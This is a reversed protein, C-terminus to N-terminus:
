PREKEYGPSSSSVLSLQTGKGTIGLTSTHGAGFGSQLMGSSGTRDAPGQSQSHTALWVAPYGPPVHGAPQGACRTGGLMEASHPPPIWDGPSGGARQCTSLARLKNPLLWVGVGPPKGAHHLTHEKLVEGRSRCGVNEAHTGMFM